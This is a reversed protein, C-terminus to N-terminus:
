ALAQLTLWPCNILVATRSYSLCSWSAEAPRKISSSRTELPVVFCYKPLPWLNTWLLM